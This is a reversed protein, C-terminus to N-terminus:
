PHQGPRRLRPTRSPVSCLTGLTTCLPTKFYIKLRHLVRTARTRTTTPKSWVEVRDVISAIAARVIHPDDQHINERIRRLENVIKQAEAGLAEASVDAIRALTVLKAEASQKEARCERIQRYFVPLMDDPAESLRSEAKDIKKDLAAITKRLSAGSSDLEGRRSLLHETITKRYRTIQEDSLYESEIRALVHSLVTELKVCYNCDATLAPRSKIKNLCRLYGSSSCVAQGCHGCRVLGSLSTAQRPARKDHKRKSDLKEQVREWTERDVIAPHANEAVICQSRSQWTIKDARRKVEESEKGITRVHKGTARKGRVITGIYAENEFLESVALGTWGNGKSTRYGRENLHRAIGSFSVDSLAFLEFAERVVGARSEDIALRKRKPNIADPVIKYGYPPVSCSWYGGSATSRMGRSVGHALKKLFNNSEHQSVCSLLMGSISEFDRPGEVVSVLSVEADRLAKWYIAADLIDFRSFRDQSWVLVADFDRITKADQVLKQFEERTEDDGSIAEDVYWRVLKYGNREAYRIIESRQDDISKDQQDSSMRLYGVAVISVSKNM